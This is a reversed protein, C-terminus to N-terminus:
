RSQRSNIAVVGEADGRAEAAILEAHAAVYWDAERLADISLGLRPAALVYDLGLADIRAVADAAFLDSGSLALSRRLPDDRSELHCWSGARGREYWRLGADPPVVGTVGKIAELAASMRAEISGRVVLTPTNGLRELIGRQQRERAIVSSRVGDQAWPIDTDAVLTLAYGGAAGESEVVTDRRGLYEEHWM